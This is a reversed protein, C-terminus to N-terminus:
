WHGDWSSSISLSFFEKKTAFSIAHIGSSILSIIDLNTTLYLKEIKPLHVILHSMGFVFTTNSSTKMNIHAEWLFVFRKHSTYLYPKQPLILSRGRNTGISRRRVDRAWGVRGVDSARAERHTSCKAGITGITDDKAEAFAKRLVDCSEAKEEQIEYYGHQPFNHIDKHLSNCWVFM